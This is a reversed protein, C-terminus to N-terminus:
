SLRRPCTNVGFMAYLPCFGVAATLLLVFGLYGWASRPGTFVLALAVVGLAARIARDISGVNMRSMAIVGPVLRSM